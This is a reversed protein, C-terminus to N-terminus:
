DVLTKKLTLIRQVSQNVQELPLKGQRVAQVLYRHIVLVDHPLLERDENGNLVKGGLLVIDHGALLTKLAAEALSSYYGDLGKMVLSDSIIIGQYGMEKRLLKDVIFSSFTVPQTPDLATVLLHSTMILPAQSALQRFPLLEMAQLVVLPKNIVPLAEHSDVTVDGHGPFHKLTAAIGAQKYGALAQAGFDAVLQPDAGFSRNNIVPNHPNNNVDVVPAFNLNIGVAKLEHGIGLAVEFAKAPQRAAAVEQNSPYLTFGDTLRNVRGGEQDVAIFLPLSSQKQLGKSLQKVQQPDSLQNAWKYYIFGGVHAEKLLIESDANPIGGHFHVLLLQGIKEELTLSEITASLINVFAFALLCINKIM